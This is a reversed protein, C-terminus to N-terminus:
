VPQNPVYLGGYDPVYDYQQELLLQQQQQQMQQLQMQQMQTLQQLQQLQQQYYNPNFSNNANM